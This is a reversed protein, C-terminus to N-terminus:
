LFADEKKKMYIIEQLYLKRLLLEVKSLYRFANSLYFADVFRSSAIKPLYPDPVDIGLVARADRMDREMCTSAHNERYQEIYRGLSEYHRFLFDGRSAAIITRERRSLVQNGGRSTDVRKKSTKQEEKPQWGELAGKFALRSCVCPSPEANLLHTKIQKEEGGCCPQKETEM